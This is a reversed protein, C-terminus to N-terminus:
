FGTGGFFDVIQRRSFLYPWLAPDREACRRQWEGPSYGTFHRM